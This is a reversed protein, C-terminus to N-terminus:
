RGFQMPMLVHLFDNDDDNAKFVLPETAANAEVVVQPAGIIALVDLLYGNNVNVELPSGDVRAQLESEGEGTEASTAAVRVRQGDGNEMNLKVTNAAQRAFIGTLRCARLFDARPATVTTRASRPIVSQFDPFNGDILQSIILTDGVEFWIQRRDHVLRIEVWDVDGALRAVEALARAPVIAEREIGGGVLTLSRTSLRFGDTAAMRVQSSDFLMQVGALTPRAEDQAAAFSVETLAQALEPGAAKAMEEGELDPLRPFEEADIGKINAEHRGARLDLSVDKEVAELHVAEESPAANVWDTLTKAPVTIAGEAEIQADVVRRIIVIELNTGSLILNGEQTELKVNALVPLTSRTSVARGALSLANSLAKQSVVAKM